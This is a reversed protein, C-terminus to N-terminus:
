ETRLSKVPNSTAARIAQFSVTAVAIIFCLLGTLVYVDVSMDIKYTYEKLWERMNYWAIPSAILFSIGVLKLFDKTLLIVIDKVSAGLVKRVGIEKVRNTAMYASLGFVVLCSIIIALATFLSSLTATRRTNEFKKAYQEDVFRYEFPYNPNIEKLTNEIQQLNDSIARDPNLKIHMMNFWSGPGMVMMPRIPEYPSGIIFDKIVGVVTYKTDEDSIM